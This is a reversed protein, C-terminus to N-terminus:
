FDLPFGGLLILSTVFCYGRNDAEEAGDAPSTAVVARSGMAVM